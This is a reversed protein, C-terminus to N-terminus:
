ISAIPDRKLIKHPNKKAVSPFFWLMYSTIIFNYKLYYQM